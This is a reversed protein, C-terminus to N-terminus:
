DYNLRYVSLDPRHTKIRQQEYEYFRQGINRLLPFGITKYEYRDDNLIQNKNTYVVVSLFFELGKDFDVIYANDILYGFAMGVKNFIRINSPISRGQTDGYLLYKNYNDPYQSYDPYRNERPLSSLAQWLLRQDQLSLNFRREPAVAEPMMTAILIQHLTPLSIYNKDRLDKPQKVLKGTDDDIYGIGKRMPDIKPPYAQPNLQEAQEYVLVEPNDVRYFRMPNTYRNDVSKFKSNALRHILRLDDYNRRWFCENLYKQGVFEYLRNSADNDSIILAKRIYHALHAYGTASTSDKLKNPKQPERAVLVEMPSYRTLGILDLENLRQLAAIAYPLKVTSAPYFYPANATRYHFTKLQAQNQADRNIQTYIIQLEYQEPAELIPAFAYSEPATKLLSDILGSYRTQGQCNSLLVLSIGALFLLANPLLTKPM